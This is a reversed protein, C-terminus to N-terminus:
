IRHSIRIFGHELKNIYKRNIFKINVLHYHPPIDYCIGRGGVCVTITLLDLIKESSFSYVCIHIKEYINCIDFKLFIHLCVCARVCACVCM